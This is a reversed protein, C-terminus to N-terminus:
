KRLVYKELIFKSVPRLRKRIDLPYEGSDTYFEASDLTIKIYWVKGIDKQSLTDPKTIRKLHELKYKNLAVIPTDGVIIDCGTAEYNNGTWYMCQKNQEYLYYSAFAVLVIFISCITAIWVKPKSPKGWWNTQKKTNPFPKTNEIIKGLDIGADVEIKNEETPLDTKFTTGEIKVNIYKKNFDEENDSNNEVEEQEQLLQEDDISEYNEFNFNILWAVLEITEDRPDKTINKMFQVVPKFKDAIMKKLALGVDIDDSIQLFNRLIQKDSLSNKKKYLNICEKKIRADTPKRLNIPFSPNKCRDIYVSRIQTSSFDHM